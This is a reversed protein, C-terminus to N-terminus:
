SCLILISLKLFFIKGRVDRTFIRFVYFSSPQLERYSVHEKESKGDISRLTIWEGIPHTPRNLNSASAILAASEAGRIEDRRPRQSVYGNETEEAVSVRKAQLLHGVIDDSNAVDNWSLTVSSQGSTIQPKNPPPPGDRNPGITVNASRHEGKGATTEAWVSFYYTVGEALGHAYFYNRSTRQQDENKFEEQMRYGKYNVIYGTVVGNPQAPEDWSVKASDMLVDSFRLVGVPGPKDELTKERVQSMKGEGARNYPSVSIQYETFKRLDNLICENTDVIMVEEESSVSSLVSVVPVYRVKFSTITESDEKPFADWKVRISSSSRPETEINTVNRKPISYGVYVFVPASFPGEGESNFMRMRIIYHRFSDLKSLVKEERENHDVTIPVEEMQWTENSPYERYHIRYGVVESNWTSKHPVVWELLVSNREYPTAKLSIPHALPAAPLTAMWESEPSWSSELFDGIFRIRFRYMSNPSLHKVVARRKSYEFKKDLTQWEDENTKQYSVQVARVPSEADETLKRPLTEDWRIAIETALHQSQPDRVPSPANRVPLRLSSTMVEAVAEESEGKSNKAKIAFTYQTNPNLSMAAFMLLNGLLPADIAMSRPEHSKWYSIIYNQFDTILIRKTIHMFYRSRGM